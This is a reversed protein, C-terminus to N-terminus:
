CAFQFILPFKLINPRGLAGSILSHAILQAEMVLNQSAEDSVMIHVGPKAATEADV